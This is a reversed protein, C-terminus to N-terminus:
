AFQIILGGDDGQEIRSLCLLRVIDRNIRKKMEEFAFYAERRYEYEVKHQAMNRDQVVTKLQELFDVQEIWAVDISKLFVINQFRAFLEDEALLDIKDQVEQSFMGALFQQVQQAHHTDLADFDKPLHYSLNDFIYRMVSGSTTLDHTM